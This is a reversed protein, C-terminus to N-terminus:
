DSAHSAGKVQELVQDLNYSEPAQLPPFAKYTLLHQLWL